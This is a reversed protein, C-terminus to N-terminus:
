HLRTYYFLFCQLTLSQSYQMKSPVASCSVPVGHYVDKPLIVVLPAKHALIISSVAMMGSAFAACIAVEQTGKGHCELRAIEEELLLRTPNNERAYISDGPNYPGTAPRSWTSAFHIPPSMPANNDGDCRVGAHALLTDMREDLKKAQAAVAQARRGAEQASIM